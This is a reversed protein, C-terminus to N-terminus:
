PAPEDTMTEWGEVWPGYTTQRLAEELAEDLPYRWVQDERINGAGYYQAASLTLDLGNSKEIVVQGDAVEIWAHWFRKGKTEPGQGTVVGHCIAVDVGIEHLEIANRYAAVFCDGLKDTDTTM